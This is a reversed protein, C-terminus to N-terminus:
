PKEKIDNDTLGLNNRESNGEAGVVNGDWLVTGKEPVVDGPKGQLAFRKVPEGVDSVGGEGGVGMHIFKESVSPNNKFIDGALQPLTGDGLSQSIISLVSAATKMSDDPLKQLKKIINNMNVAADAKANQELIEEPSIIHHFTSDKKVIGSAFQAITGDEISKSLVFLADSAIQMDVYRSEKLQKALTNIETLVESEISVASEKPDMGNKMDEINNEM